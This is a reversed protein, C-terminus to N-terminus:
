DVYQLRRKQEDVVDCARNIAIALARATTVEMLGGHSEEGFFRATLIRVYGATVGVEIVAQKAPDVPSDPNWGRLRHLTGNVALVYGSDPENCDDPKDGLLGM